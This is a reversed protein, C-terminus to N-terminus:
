ATRPKQADRNQWRKWLARAVVIILLGIVAYEFYGTYQRVMEWRAGLWWGAGILIGNWIASGITTYLIFRIIPMGTFGAPLSIGSRIFPILRGFFVTSGGHREFWGHARDLDDESAFPIWPYKKGFARLRREGVKRGIAYLILAGLVSGVTAAIMVGVISLKGQGVAVGALPLVVESPIPPINNELLILVLVGVYGLREVTQLVWETM